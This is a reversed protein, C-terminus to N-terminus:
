DLGCVDLNTMTKSKVKQRRDLFDQFGDLRNLQTNTLLRNGHLNLDILATDTFLSRPLGPQQQQQSLIQLQNDRLSLSKLKSLQGMATPLAAIRNSDLRLEQLQILLAIEDPVTVLQNSSLDLKELKSLNSSLVSRPISTLFNASLNLQKLSSPLSAALPDGRNMTTTTTRTKGLQNGALSLNQLKTLKPIADHVAGAPLQNHDLNLIKLETLVALRDPLHQARELHNKSLDLTRLKTIM